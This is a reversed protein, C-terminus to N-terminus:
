PKLTLIPPFFCPVMSDTAVVRYGSKMSIHYTQMDMFLQNFEPMQGRSNKTLVAKVYERQEMMKKREKKMMGRKIFPKRIHTLPSECHFVAWFM